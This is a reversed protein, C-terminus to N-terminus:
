LEDFEGHLRWFRVGPQQYIEDCEVERMTHALGENNLPKRIFDMDPKKVGQVFFSQGPRMAAVRDVLKVLAPNRLKTKLKRTARRIPVGDEVVIEGLDRV